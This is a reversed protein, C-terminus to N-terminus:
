QGGVAAALKAQAILQSTKAQAVTGEAHTLASLADLREATVSKGANYRLDALRYSEQAANIGTISEQVMATATQLTLWATAVQQDVTQRVQLGDARARDLRAKAGDVDARRQGGDYLPLSATLGVTYGVRGVGQGAMADGMAVGYIQPSYVGKATSVGAEAAEVQKKASALEPRRVEAQRLADQLTAPLSVGAGSLGDLTDSLTFTSEQSVGLATKLSVLALSAENQIALLAQQADAQEAQERLLDVPASRGTSVKAQTVRVQENEATLRTQAVEVLAQQLVANMYEETVTETVSLRSAQVSLQAAEGQRRAATINSELRGGTRLPVMLMLNQDAFGHSPVAFINQPPVGPSSTLINSSDGVTGYTTTSLSPKAQATASRVSASASAADAQMQKLTVSNQAAVTLADQLSFKSSNVTPLDSYSQADAASAWGPLSALVSVAMMSAMIVFSYRLSYHKLSTREKM